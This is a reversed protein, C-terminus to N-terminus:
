LGIKEERAYYFLYQQAYGGLDGFKQTSFSQINEVSQKEDFYFHEIVRKIWVDVPFSNRKALSFLLICDAVKNGIGNIKMLEKKALNYDLNNLYSFDSQKCFFEAASFIYKDRYGAKIPSLADLGLSYIKQPTPFSHYTGGMYSIEDGYLECLKNIIKKIRPINNSASIIFSVVCEWLDQNLIRIGSGYETAEKLVLDNSLKAKIKSYDTNFDFYNFWIDDFDKRTTNFFTVTDGDQIIKLARNNAVGIYGGDQIKNWRFCQGCEFINDLNFDNVNTLVLNNNCESIKMVFNNYCVWLFIDINITCKQIFKHLKTSM